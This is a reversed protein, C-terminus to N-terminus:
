WGDFSWLGSFFALVLDKANSKTGEFGTKIYKTHGAFFKIFIFIMKFIFNLFSIFFYFQQSTGTVLYYFGGLIVIFCAAIKLTSFMNQIKVYLKVSSFNIFTILGSVISNM